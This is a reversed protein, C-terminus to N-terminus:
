ILKYLSVKGPYYFLIGINGLTIALTWFYGGRRDFGNQWYKKATINM